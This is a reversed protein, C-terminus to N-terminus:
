PRGSILERCDCGCRPPACDECFNRYVPERHVQERPQFYGSVWVSNIRDDIAAAYFALLGGEGYGAVGIPWERRSPTNQFYDVAAMVKQVEYGILHRGMFFAQRYIFERHTQNMMRVRPNGSWTTQRDIITPILVRCGSEALRRAFAVNPLTDTKADLGALMEPTQDADPIAVVLARTEGKPELLLGEADVRDFVSWRVAMIRVRDTEAILAPQNLTAVLQLDNPARRKDVAGLRRRLSERNKLISQRYAGRSSFDRRWFEERANASQEIRKLLFQDVAKLNEAPLDAETQLPKTGPLTQLEDTLGPSAFLIATLVLAQIKCKM